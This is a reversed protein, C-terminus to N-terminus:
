RAAPTAVTQRPGRDHRGDGRADGRGRGFVHPSPHLRLRPLQYAGVVSRSLGEEFLPRTLRHSIADIALSRDEERAEIVDQLEPDVLGLAM